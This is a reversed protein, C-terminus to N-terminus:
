TEFRGYQSSCSFCCLQLRNEESASTNVGGPPRTGKGALFHLNAARSPATAKSGQVRGSLWDLSPLPRSSIFRCQVRPLESLSSFGWSSSIGPIKDQPASGSRRVAGRAYAWLYPIAQNVDSDESLHRLCAGSMQWKRLKRDAPSLLAVFRLTNAVTRRSCRCCRPRPRIGSFPTRASGFNLTWCCRHFCEGLSACVSGKTDERITPLGDQMSLVFSHSTLASRSVM